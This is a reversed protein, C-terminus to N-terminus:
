HRSLVGMFQLVSWSDLFQDLPVSIIKSGNLVKVETPSYGVVVVTHEYPAVVTFDGSAPIYPHPIGNVLNGSSGGIIWTIVPNGSAVEARVDDWHL